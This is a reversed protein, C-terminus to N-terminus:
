YGAILLDEKLACSLDRRETDKVTGLDAFSSQNNGKQQQAQLEVGDGGHNGSVDRSSKITADLVNIHMFVYHGALLILFHGALSFL